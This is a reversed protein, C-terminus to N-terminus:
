TPLQSIVERAARIRAGEVSEIPYPIDKTALDNAPLNILILPCRMGAYQDALGAQSFTDALLTPYQMRIIPSRHFPGGHQCSPLLQTDSGGETSGRDTVVM